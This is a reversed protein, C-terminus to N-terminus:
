IGERFLKIVEEISGVAKLQDLRECLAEFEREDPLPVAKKIQTKELRHLRDLLPSQIIKHLQMSFVAEYIRLYDPMSGSHRLFAHGSDILIIKEQIYDYLYNADHRDQQGTLWDFLACEFINQSKLVLPGSETTYIRADPYDIWVQVTTMEDILILEPVGLRLMKALCFAWYERQAISGSELKIQCDEHNRKSTRKLFLKGVSTQYLEQVATQGRSPYNQTAFPHKKGKAILEQVKAPNKLLSKM